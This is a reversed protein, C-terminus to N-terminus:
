SHFSYAGDDRLVSGIEYTIDGDKNRYVAHMDGNDAMVVSVSRPNDNHMAWQTLYGLARYVERLDSGREKIAKDFGAMKIVRVQREVSHKMDSM